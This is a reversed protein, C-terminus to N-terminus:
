TTCDGPELECYRCSYAAATACSSSRNSRAFPLALDAFDVLLALAAAATPVAADEDTMKDSLASRIPPAKQSGESPM